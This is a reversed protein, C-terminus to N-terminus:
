KSHGRVVDANEQADVRRVRVPPECASLLVLGGLLAIAASRSERRRGVRGRSEEPYPVVL